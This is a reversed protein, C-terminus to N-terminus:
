LLGHLQVRVALMGGWQQEDVVILAIVVYLEGITDNLLSCFCGESRKASLNLDAALNFQLLSCLSAVM